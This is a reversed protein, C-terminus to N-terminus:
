KVNRELALREEKTKSIRNNELIYLLMESTSIQQRMYHLKAVSYNEPQKFQEKISAIKNKLNKEIDHM